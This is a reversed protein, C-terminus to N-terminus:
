ASLDRNTKAARTNKLLEETMKATERISQAAEVVLHLTALDM